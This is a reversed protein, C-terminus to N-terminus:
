LSVDRGLSTLGALDVEWEAVVRWDDEDGTAKAKGKGGDESARTSRSDGEVEDVATPRAWVTAQIRSETWGPWDRVQEPFAPLGATPDLPTESSASSWSPVTIQEPDLFFTAHTAAQSLDSVFFPRVPAPPPALAAAVPSAPFLTSSPSKATHSPFSPLPAFFDASVTTRRRM